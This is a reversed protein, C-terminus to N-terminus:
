NCLFSIYTHVFSHVCVDIGEIKMQQANDKLYVQLPAGIRLCVQSEVLQRDVHVEDQEQRYKIVDVLFRVRETEELLNKDRRLHEYEPCTYILHNQSSISSCFTCKFGSKRNEPDSPFNLKCYKLMCYRERYRVRAFGPKM